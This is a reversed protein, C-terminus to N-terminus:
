TDVLTIKPPEPIEALQFAILNANPNQNKCYVDAMLEGLVQGINNYVDSDIEITQGHHNSISITYKEGSKPEVIVIIMETNNPGNLHLVRSNLKIM